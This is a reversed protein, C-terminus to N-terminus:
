NEAPITSQTSPDGVIVTMERTSKLSADDPHIVTFRFRHQGQDRNSTPWFFTRSGDENVDFSANAPLRDILIIPPLAHAHDPAVKITLLKGASVIHTAIPGLTPAQRSGGNVSTVSRGPNAAAPSILQSEQNSGAGRVEIEIDREFVLNPDDKDMARITLFHRGVDKAQPQWYVLSWGDGVDTMVAGSPLAVGIMIPPKGSRSRGRFFFEWKIGVNLHVTDIPAITPALSSESGVPSQTKDPDVSDLGVATLVSQDAFATSASFLLCMLLFLLRSCM